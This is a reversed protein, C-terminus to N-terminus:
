RNEYNLVIYMHCYVIVIKSFNVNYHINSVIKHFDDKKSFDKKRAVSIGRLEVIYLEHDHLRM